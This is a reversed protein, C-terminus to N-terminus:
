GDMVPMRLDMWILHPQWNQWIEIAKQGNEAEQLEFGFPNLLKILLQRNIPKDDVILLRYIAQNPALAIANRKSTPTSIDSNKAISVQMSFKFVTGRDVQSEVTIDGGM